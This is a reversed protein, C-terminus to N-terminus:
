FEMLHTYPGNTDLKLVQRNGYTGHKVETVTDSNKCTSLESQCHSVFSNYLKLGEDKGINGHYQMRKGKPKGGLTAQPVILVSGPLQLVSTYKGSETECLKMNLLTNVMKPIIDETAGKFFCIYIVMGRNIEVWEAESGAEPPKVQLRAHLCQQLIVRAKMCNETRESM